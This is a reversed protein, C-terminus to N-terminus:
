WNMTFIARENEQETHKQKNNYMWLMANKIKKLSKDLPIRMKIEDNEKRQPMTKKLIVYKIKLSAVFKLSTRSWDISPLDCVLM